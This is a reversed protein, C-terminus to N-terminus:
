NSDDHNGKEEEAVRQDFCEDCFEDIVPSSSLGSDYNPATADYEERTKGCDPCRYITYYWWNSM